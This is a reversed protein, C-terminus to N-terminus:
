SIKCFILNVILFAAGLRFFRNLILYRGKREVTIQNEESSVFVM